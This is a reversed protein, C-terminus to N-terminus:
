NRSRLHILQELVRYLDCYKEAFVQGRARNKLRFNTWIPVQYSCIEKFIMICM